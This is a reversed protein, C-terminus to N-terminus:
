IKNLVFKEIIHAVGDEDVSPAIYDAIAKLDDVANGMAIKLGCAMLLPFDNYGDGVGIIEHTDINLLRSIELIAHQKSAQAHTLSITINGSVWSPLKHVGLNPIKNLLSAVADVTKPPVAICYATLPKLPKYKKSLPKDKGDDNIIFNLNFHQITKKIEGIADKEISKEWLIERTEVNVIRSGASIISPGSFQLHSTIGSLMFMPRSTAVGMHLRNKARIITKRVKESPIGDRKNPILTGDVDFIIAKFRRGTLKNTRENNM